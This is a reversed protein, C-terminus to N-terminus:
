ASFTPFRVLTEVQYSYDRNSIVKPVALHKEINECTPESFKEEVCHINLSAV